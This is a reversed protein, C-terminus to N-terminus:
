AAGQPALAPNLCVPSAQIHVRQIHRASRATFGERGHLLGLNDAIVVDGEQWQHAYFCRPNYLRQHLDQLFAAQEAPAVGEIELAHQNLFRVGRAAARQLAAGDRREGPPAGAAALAGPRRLAGGAQHSLYHAGAGM